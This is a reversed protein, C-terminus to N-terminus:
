GFRSYEQIKWYENLKEFLLSLEQSSEQKHYRATM